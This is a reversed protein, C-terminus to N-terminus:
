RQILEVPFGSFAENFRILPLIKGHEDDLCGSCNPDSVTFGIDGLLPPLPLGSCRGKLVSTLAWPRSERRPEKACEYPLKMPRTVCRVAAPAATRRKDSIAVAPSIKAMRAQIKPARANPTRM